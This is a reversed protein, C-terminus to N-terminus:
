LDLHLRMYAQYFPSIPALDFDDYGLQEYLVKMAALFKTEDFINSDIDFLYVPNTIQHWHYFQKIEEVIEPRCHQFKDINYGSSEFDKWSPWDSGALSEYKERCEHGAANSIKGRHRNIPDKLRTALNWFKEVNILQIIKANPWVQLVNKTIELTHLLMYFDLKSNSMKIVLDDSSLDVGSYLHNDSWEYHTTWKILENHGLKHDPLTSMVAQLRYNYDDPYTLVHRAHLAHKLVAHRSLGLCNCIFNGGSFAPFRLITMYSTSFNTQDQRM